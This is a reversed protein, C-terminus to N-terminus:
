AEDRRREPSAEDPALGETSAPALDVRRPPTAEALELLHHGPAAPDIAAVLAGIGEVGHRALLSPWGEVREQPKGGPRIARALRELQKRGRGARRAADQRLGDVIRQVQHEISQVAKDIRKANGEDRHAQIAAGLSAARAEIPAFVDEAGGVGAGGGVTADHEALREEVRLLAAEDLGLERAKAATTPDLVTATARPALHSREIGCLRYLPAIQWLYLLETSGGLTVDVPLAGDQTLPRLAASPSFREPEARIRAATEGAATPGDALDFTDEAADYRCPRRDLGADTPVFEFLTARELPPQYGGRRLTKAGEALAGDWGAAQGVCAALVPATHRRLAMPDLLVIRGPEFLAAFLTALLTAYTSWDLGAFLELAAKAHPLRALRERLEALVAERHPRLDIRGVPPHVGAVREHEVLLRKGFVHTRCVEDLDHDESAIWFAPLIPCGEHGEAPLTEARATEALRLASAAKWLTYLPGGLLGPQQGGVALRGRTALAAITAESLPNGVARNYAAITEVLAARGAGPRCAPACEPAPATSAAPMEGASSAAAKPGSADCSPGYAPHAPFGAPWGQRAWGALLAGAQAPIADYSVIHRSVSAGM